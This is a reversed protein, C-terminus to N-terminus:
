RVALLGGDVVMTEGTVYSAESSALFLMAPVIESPTAQRRMPVLRLFDDEAAARGGELDWVPDNFSTDTWGPCVTNVRIDADAVEAALSRSFNIIAAKAACYAAQNAAGAVGATSSTFVIAGGGSSRLAPISYKAVLFAGRVNVQMIRDFQELEMSEVPGAALTGAHSFVANLKGHASLARDIADRVSGEQTVDTPPEADLDVVEVHSGEARLADVLARGIAGSGGTVLAVQGEFRGGTM